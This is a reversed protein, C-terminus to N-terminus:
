QKGKKGAQEPNAPKRFNSGVKFHCMQTANNLVFSHQLEDVCCTTNKYNPRHNSIMKLQFKYGKRGSVTNHQRTAVNTQLNSRIVELNRFRVKNQKNQM